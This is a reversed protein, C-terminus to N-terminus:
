GSPYMGELGLVPFGLAFPSCFVAAGFTVIQNIAFFREIKTTFGVCCLFLRIM